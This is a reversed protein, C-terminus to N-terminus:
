YNARYGTLTVDVNANNLHTVTVDIRLSERGTGSLANLDGGADDLIDVTVRYDSLSGIPSGTQDTVAANSIAPLDYDCVDDFTARTEAGGTNETCAASSCTSGSNCDTPCDNTVDPDCFPKLSIEELYSRAIAHAQQRVMPDVSNRTSTNILQAFSAIGIGIIVIALVLEILTFGRCRM